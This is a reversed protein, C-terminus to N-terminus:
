RVWVKSAKFTGYKLEMVLYWDGEDELEFVVNSGMESKIFGDGVFHGDKLQVATVDGQQLHEVIIQNTKVPINIKAKANSLVRKNVLVTYQEFIKDGKVELEIGDEQTLYHRLSIDGGYLQSVSGQGSFDIILTRGTVADCHNVVPSAAGDGDIDLAYDGTPLKLYYAKNFIELCLRRGEKDANAIVDEFLPYTEGRIGSSVLLAAFCSLATLAKIKGM